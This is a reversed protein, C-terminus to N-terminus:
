SLPESNDMDNPDESNRAGDFMAPAVRIRGGRVLSMDRRYHLAFLGNPLALALHVWFAIWITGTHLTLLSLLVGLFLAGVAEQPGKPIHAASYLAANIGAAGWPGIIVATPFLLVGRFFLEYALLYVTWGAVHILLTYGTWVKKRIEPYRGFDTKKRSSFWVALVAAPCLVATCMLVLLPRPGFFRLGLDAPSLSPFILVTAMPAIIGFLLAGWGKNFVFYFVSGRNEGFRDNFWRLVRPSDIPLWYALFFIIGSLYLLFLSFDPGGAPFIQINL